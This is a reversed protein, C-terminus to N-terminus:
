CCSSCLCVARPVVLKVVPQVVTAREARELCNLLVTVLFLVPCALSM